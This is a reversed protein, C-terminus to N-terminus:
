VLDYATLAQVKDTEALSSKIAVELTNFPIRDFSVAGNTASPMAGVAILGVSSSATAVGGDFVVVGDLTIRLSVTRATADTASAACLKLVGPVSVTLVTKYADATLAGSLIAAANVHLNSLLAAAGGRGMLATPPKDAPSQPPALVDSLNVNAM